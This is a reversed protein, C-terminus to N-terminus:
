PGGVVKRCFESPHLATRRFETPITWDWVAICRDYINTPLPWMTRRFNTPFYRRFESSKVTLRFTTPFKDSYVSSSGVVVVTVNKIPIDDFLRRFIGVVWTEDSIASPIGVVDFKQIEDSIPRYDTVFTRRCQHRDSGGDSNPTNEQLTLILTHVWLVSQISHFRPTLYNLSSIRIQGYSWSAM